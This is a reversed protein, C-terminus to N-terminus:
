RLPSTSSRVGASRRASLDRILASSSALLIRYAGFHFTLAAGRRPAPQERFDRLPDGGERLRALARARQPRMANRQVLRGREGGRLEDLHAM